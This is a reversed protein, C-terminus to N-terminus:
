TAGVSLLYQSRVAVRCSFVPSKNAGEQVVPGILTGVAVCLWKHFSLRAVCFVVAFLEVYGVDNNQDCRTAVPCLWGTLLLLPALLTM